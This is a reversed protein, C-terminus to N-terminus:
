ILSVFLHGLMYANIVCKGGMSQPCVRRVFGSGPPIIGFTQVASIRTAEAM